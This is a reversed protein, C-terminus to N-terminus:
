EKPLRRFKGRFFILPQGDAMQVDEVEGVCISHDGADHWGVKRCDLRALGGELTPTGRASRTFRIGLRDATIRDQEVLAFYRAWEEHNEALVNVGFRMQEAVLRHTRAKKGICVLILLPVLSVSTFANATMGHVLTGDDVTVVTVGTAFHGLVKRFIEANPSEKTPDPMLLSVNDRFGGIMLIRAVSRV